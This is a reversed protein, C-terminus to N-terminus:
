ERRASLLHRECSKLYCRRFIYLILISCSNLQSFAGKGREAKDVTNFYSVVASTGRIDWIGSVQANPFKKKTELMFPMHHAQLVTFISVKTTKTVQFIHM